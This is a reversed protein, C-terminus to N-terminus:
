GPAECEDDLRGAGLYTKQDTGGDRDTGTEVAADDPIYTGVLRSIIESVM